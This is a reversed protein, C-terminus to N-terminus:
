LKSSSTEQITTAAPAQPTVANSPSSPKSEGIANAAKVTFTYSTGNTLGSVVASRDSAGATATASGPSSTVTYGTIPSGGDYAPADWSVTASANGAVASVNRPPLPPTPAPRYVEASALDGSCEVTDCPQYGGAVLVRGGPLPAAVRDYRGTAVYLEVSATGNPSDYQAGGAVLVRGDDLRAAAHCRRSTAMSAAASWTNAVPEYLSASALPTDVQFQVQKWGGAVLVRGDSLPTATADLRPEAMTGASSWSDTSAAAPAGLSLMGIVLMATLVRGILMVRREPLRERTRSEMSQAQRM